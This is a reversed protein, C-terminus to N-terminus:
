IYVRYRVFMNVSSTMSSFKFNITESVMFVISFLFICIKLVFLWVKLANAFSRITIIIKKIDTRGYPVVRSGSSKNQHFKSNSCKKFIHQSYELQM